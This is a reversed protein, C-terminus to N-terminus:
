AADAQIQSFRALALSLEDDHAVPYYDPDCFFFDPYQDLLRYKLETASLGGPLPPIPTPPVPTPFPPPTYDAPPVTAPIVTGIEATSVVGTVSIGSGAPTCAALVLGFTLFLLLFKSM